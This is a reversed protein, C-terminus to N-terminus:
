FLLKRNLMNAVVPENRLSLIGLNEIKFCGESLQINLWLIRGQM